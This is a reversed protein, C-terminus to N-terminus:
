RCFGGMCRFLYLEYEWMVYVGKGKVRIGEFVIGKKKRLRPLIGSM